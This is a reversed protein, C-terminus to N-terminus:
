RCTFSIPSLSFPILLSLLFLPPPLVPSLCLHLRSFLFCHPSASYPLLLFGCFPPPSCAGASGCVFMTKAAAGEFMRAVSRDTHGSLLCGQRVSICFSCLIRSSVCLVNQTHCLVSAALEFAFPGRFGLLCMRIVNLFAQPNM